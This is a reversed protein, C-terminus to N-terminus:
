YKILSTRARTVATYSYKLNPITYCNMYVKEWEGGQAKNCTISHGHALRIAGIYRDDEPKGSERYIKNKAYREHRIARERDSPLAGAPFDISDLLLYDEISFEKGALDKSLLKVPAFRLDAVTEIRDLLVHEIIVHDGNYLCLGNRSWKQTVLMLDGNTILPVKEGYLRKRVIDNFYKNSNHTCGISICTDPKMNKYDEVYKTVAYSFSYNPAEINYHKIGKEIAKCINTANKLIYSGDEQRKVETLLHFSGKWNYKKQLFDPMLAYSDNEHVPPLQNRDGLLILKNKANGSKIYMALHNLLADSCIFLSDEQKNTTANIMSAEDVVYVTFEDSDPHKLTFHVVGTEPNSEANYILSHITSNQANTKRGLIRAARGTPAAISYHTGSQNLYGILASTISTKGTGAAGCLILFDDMNDDKVFDAMAILSNKQEATPSDFHLFDLISIAKTM